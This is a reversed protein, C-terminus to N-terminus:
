KAASIEALPMLNYALLVLENKVAVAIELLVGVEVPVPSVMVKLESDSVM